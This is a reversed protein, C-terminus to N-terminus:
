FVNSVAPVAGTPNMVAAFEDTATIKSAFTKTM